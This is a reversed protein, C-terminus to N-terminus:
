RDASAPSEPLGRLLRAAVGRLTEKGYAHSGDAETLISVAVREHGRVLLATQHDVAGTGTGWGGKFYLEWGPVEVRGFGWRQSPTISALLRLAYARHRRPVFKDIRLFFRAQDEADIRSRGWVGGVPGFREMGVRRGLRRLARLGVVGLTASAAANDSRRIMPGLRAKEAHTLRRDRVSTRNLYAVLLIPKLLSASQFTRRERLGWAETRTRVAFAVVGHRQAVYREAAHVHPRWAAAADGAGLALILAALALCRASRPVVRM